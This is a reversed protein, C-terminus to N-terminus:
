FVLIGKFIECYEFNDERYSRNNKLCQWVITNTKQAKTSKMERTQQLSLSHSSM